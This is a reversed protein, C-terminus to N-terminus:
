IPIAKLNLEFASGKKVIFSTEIIVGAENLLREDLQDLYKKEFATTFFLTQRLGRRKIRRATQIAMYDMNEKNLHSLGKRAGWDKINDVMETSIYPTNYRYKGTNPQPRYWSVFTPPPGIGMVGEDTFVYYDPLDIEAGVNSVSITIPPVAIESPLQNPGREIKNAALISIMQATRENLWEQLIAAVRENATQAM